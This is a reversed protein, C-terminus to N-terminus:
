RRDDDSAMADTSKSLQLPPSMALLHAETRSVQIPDM